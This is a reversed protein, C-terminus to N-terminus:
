QHPLVVRMVLGEVRANPVRRLWGHRGVAEFGACRHRKAWDVLLDYFGQVDMPTDKRAGAIWVRVFPGNPYTVFETAVIAQVVDGEMQAWLQSQGSLLMERVDETEHTSATAIAPAILPEIQNWLPEVNDPYIRFIM